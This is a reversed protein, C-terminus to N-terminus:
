RKLLNVIFPFRKYKPNSELNFHDEQPLVILKGGLKEQMIKGQKIGCEYRDNESHIFYFHKASQKIKEWDPPIKLLGKKIQNVEPLQGLQVFGAVLVAKNIMTHPPLYQLLGLVLTAGASHGIIVSQNNFQWKTNSFIFDTWRLIDPHASDPLDPVWM